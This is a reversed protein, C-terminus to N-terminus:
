SALGMNKLVSLGVNFANNQAADTKTWRPDSRLRQQFDTLSLGTPKGDPSLGNLAGKITPDFVTIDTDPIELTQGMMQIYPSAIDKVTQGADIQKAYAPYMSKAHDRVLSEYDQTTAVKRVVRQAQNKITQDDLQIGMNAAYEKMTFEHMGAEGHLTGDKTFNVYQGLVNRLLDEDMNTKLATEVIHKMKKSPIAAGIEAALQQVKVTEADVMADWTAPDTKRTIEAQRMSESNTKWWHSDRIAAQFKETSWTEKVAQSFIKKLDKNGELFAYTFGYSSALEEPSMTKQPDSYDGPNQNEAWVGDIRRGGMFRDAYYGQTIDTIQVKKGPRPAEIMKGGGAYIGVHDPGPKSHDTDFFVLDGVRLGNMSVGKGQSWMSYSTRPLNIGYKAFGQQILGSCDVGTKLDNGGWVYNTKGVFQKLYDVIENGMITM